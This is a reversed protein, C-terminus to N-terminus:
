LHRQVLWYVQFLSRSRQQHLIEEMPSLKKKNPHDDDPLQWRGLQINEVGLLRSGERFSVKQGQFYAPVGIPFTRTNWGDM